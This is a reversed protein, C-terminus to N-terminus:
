ERGPRRRRRARRQRAPHVGAHRRAETCRREDAVAAVGEHAVAGEHAKRARRRRVLLNKPRPESAGHVEAAERRRARVARVMPLVLRDERDEGVLVAETVEAVTGGRREDAFALRDPPVEEVFFKVAPGRGFLGGVEIARCLVRVAGPEAAPPTPLASRRPKNALAGVM